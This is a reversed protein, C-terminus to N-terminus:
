RRAARTPRPRRRCWCTPPRTRRPRNIPISGSTTVVIDNGQKAATATLTSGGTPQQTSVSTVNLGAPIHWYVQGGKYTGTVGGPLTQKFPSTMRYSVAGSTPVPDVDDTLTVTYAGAQAGFRTQCTLPANTTTQSDAGAVAAFGVTLGSVLMTSVLLSLSRRRM